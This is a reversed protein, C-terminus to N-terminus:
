NVLCKHARLLAPESFSSYFGLLVNPAMGACVGSRVTVAVAVYPPIKGRQLACQM